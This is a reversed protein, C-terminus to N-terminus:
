LAFFQNVSEHTKAHATVMTKYLPDKYQHTDPIGTCKRVQCFSMNPKRSLFWWLWISRQAQIKEQRAFVVKFCFQSSQFQQLSAKRGFNKRCIQCSHKTEGLPAAECPAALHKDWPWPNHIYSWLISQRWDLSLSLIYSQSLALSAAAGYPAGFHRPETFALSTAGCPAGFHKMPIDWAWPHLM